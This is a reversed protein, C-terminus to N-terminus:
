LVTAPQQLAGWLPAPDATVLRLRVIPVNEKRVLVLVEKDASLCEQQTTGDQGEQDPIVRFAADDASIRRTVGSINGLELHRGDIWFDFSCETCVEVGLPETNLCVWFQNAHRTIGFGFVEKDAIQAVFYTADTESRVSWQVPTIALSQLAAYHERAEYWDRVGLWSAFAYAGDTFLFTEYLGQPASLTM